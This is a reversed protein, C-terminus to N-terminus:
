DDEVHTEIEVRYQCLADDVTSWAKGQWVKQAEEQTRFPGIRELRKGAAPKSFTTDAYEGGVVWYLTEAETGVDETVLTYRTQASDVTAWARGSWVKLAENYSDFPGLREESKGPAMASFSTDAFEGGVVWYRKM